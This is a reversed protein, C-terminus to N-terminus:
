TLIYSVTNSYLSTPYLVNVVQVNYMGPQANTPVIFSIGTSGYFTIPLNKYTGFNVVSRGINSGFSFNNGVINVQTYVGAVSTNTSLYLIEPTFNPYADKYQKCQPSYVIGLKALKSM